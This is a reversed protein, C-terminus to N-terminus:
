EIPAFLVDLDEASLKVQDRKEESLLGEVLERKREQMASIKEEVTGVTMLKYVFVNKSQGIRHARDTAQNEVAPNWWPDYHIVTDAATLNLGTGGAKLSILFLPVKGSQFQEIPTARDNTKGTLLVYPIKKKKLEAEILALMSTFQSFLLIRRGEEIMEPVLDMLLGLKASDKIKKASALSLLQPHCCIQRLKLLADLIIIHARSFGKKNVEQKVREHMTLRVSEYLDRQAGTLEINQVIETKPPLEKVVEEKRRRLLFPAVRKALLKRRQEDNAREIPRRFASNFRTEDGLFGPLLFRFLSWLEGLHNEMPTGTLCLRHRANLSCAAQAYKTKPNKIYQAEDLILCHYDIKKLVAHDRPLLPYSSVVLDHDAIHDFHQKRDLGHLVLTKLDPAFREAEQRWNTMLSTPAIVLSPRDMRGSQKEILLHALAQVTKGLGMDDALVGALDYERLFQLWSLGELQYPRLTANLNPPPSVQTIGSFGRLRKAFERLEAAGMWNWDSDDAFEMARLKPLRLRGERDLSEPNMLELLAGLMQRTRAATLMVNGGDPLPVPLLADDPMQALQDPKMARPNEGILQLLIPLLNVKKEDVVIGLEVGFWDNGDAEAEADTYWSEPEVIRLQFSEDVEIDWGQRRLEPLDHHVFMLWEDPHSCALTNAHKGLDYNYFIDEVPSLGSDALRNFAEREFGMNRRMRHLHGDEFRELVPVDAFPEVQVGAYDFDLRALHVDGSAREKDWADRYGYFQKKLRTSYLLLRATPRVREIKDITVNRLPPLRVREQHDALQIAVTEALEPHVVPASFWATAIAPPLGTELPGCEHTSEDIYWLPSLPLIATVPPESKFVPKQSGTKDVEWEATARRPKGPTLPPRQKGCGRWYCRGTALLEPLLRAGQEGELFAEYTNFHNQTLAVKRALEMDVADVTQSHSPNLLSSLHCHSPQGFGGSKLARVHALELRIRGPEPRLVYRLQTKPSANAATDPESSEQASLSNAIKNLWAKLAPDMRVQVPPSPAVAPLVEDYFPFTGGSHSDFSDAARLVAAACHKCDIEMPCTCDGELLWNGDKNILSVAVDYPTEETGQVLAEIELQDNSEPAISCTKVRNQRLYVQGRAITTADYAHQLARRITPGDPIRM